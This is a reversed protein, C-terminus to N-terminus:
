SETIKQCRKALEPHAKLQQNLNEIMQGLEVNQAPVIYTFSDQTMRGFTKQDQGECGYLAALVKLKEGQGQAMERTLDDHNVEVYYRIARERMVWGSASCNSTGTTIGFVQSSFTHNTTLAFLQPIKAEDHFIMSGLGCGSDAALACNAVLSVALILIGKKM